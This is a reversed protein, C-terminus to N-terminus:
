APRSGASRRCGSRTPLSPWRSVSPCTGPMWDATRRGGIRWFGRTVFSARNGSTGV